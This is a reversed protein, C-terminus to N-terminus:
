LGPLNVSVVASRVPPQQCHFLVQDGHIWASTPYENAPPHPTLNVEQGTRLNRSYIATRGRYVGFEDPSPSNRTDTWVVWDGRISAAGQDAPRGPPDVVIQTRARTRLDYLIVETDREDPTPGNPWETWLVRDGDIWPHGQYLNDHTLNVPRASGLEYLWIDNDHLYVLRTGSASMRGFVGRVAIERPSEGHPGAVYLHDVGGEGVRDRWGWATLQDSAAVDNFSAILEYNLTDGVRHSSWIVRGEGEPDEFQLIDHSRSASHSAAILLSSPTCAALMWTTDRHGDRDDFLFSLRTGNQEYRYLLRDFSFYVWGRYACATHNDTWGAHSVARDTGCRPRLWACRSGDVTYAPLVISTGPGYWQPLGISTRRPVDAYQEFSECSVDTNIVDRPVREDPPPAVDRVDPPVTSPAADTGGDIGADPAPCTARDCGEAVLLILLATAVHRM